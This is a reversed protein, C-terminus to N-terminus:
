QNVAYIILAGAALLVLHGINPRTDEELANIQPLARFYKVPTNFEPSSVKIYVSDRIQTTHGNVLTGDPLKFVYGIAYTYRGPRGDTREGGQRRISTIAALSTDGVLGLAITM